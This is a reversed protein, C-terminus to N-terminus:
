TAQTTGVNSSPRLAPSPSSILSVSSVAALASVGAQDNVGVGGFAEMMKEYHIAPVSDNPNEAHDVWTRVWKDIDGNQYTMFVVPLKFRCPTEIDM